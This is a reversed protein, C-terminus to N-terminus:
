VSVPTNQISVTLWNCRDSMSFLATKLTSLLFFMHRCIVTDWYLGAFYQLGNRGGTSYIWLQHWKTYIRLSLLFHSFSLHPLTFQNFPAFCWSTSIANNPYLLHIGFISCCSIIINVLLWFYNSLLTIYCIKDVPTPPRMVELHCCPCVCSLFSVSVASNFKSTSSPHQCPSESITLSCVGLPM